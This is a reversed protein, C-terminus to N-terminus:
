AEAEGEEAEEVAEAGGKLASPTAITIVTFNVDHPVTVGDPLAIDDIHVSDGLDLSSCDVEIAEPISDARCEVDLVHRVVELLGGAVVGPCKEHNIPHVPVEIQVTEAASVRQFDLHTVMDKVPDYQAAKLLATQKGRKGKVKIEIMSTHFREDDLKKTIDFFELSIPLDPKDGGYIIAPVRGQRRLRRAEAKGTRERLEAELVFTHSM